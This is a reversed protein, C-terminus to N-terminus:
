CGAWSRDTGVSRISTQKDPHNCSYVAVGLAAVATWARNNIM